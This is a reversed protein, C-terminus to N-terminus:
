IGAGLYNFSRAQEDLAPSSVSVAPKGVAGDVGDGADKADGVDRGDRINAKFAVGNFGRRATSGNAGVVPRKLSNVRSVGFQARMVAPLEVYFMAPPYMALKRTRVYIVYDSWIEATTLNSGPKHCIWDHLYEVLSEHADPRVVATVLKLHEVVAQIRPPRLENKPFGPDTAAMKCLSQLIMQSIHATPIVVRSAAFRGQLYFLRDDPDFNYGKLRAFVRAFTAHNLRRKKGTGLFFPGFESVTRAEFFHFDLDPPWRLDAFNTCVVTAAPSYCASIDTVLVLNSSVWDMNGYSANSPFWGAIRIWICRMNGCTTIPTGALCPNDQLFKAAAPESPLILTCLGQSPAGCEIAVVHELDGDLSKWSQVISPDLRPDDLMVIDFATGAGFVQRITDETNSPPMPASGSPAATFPGGASPTTTGPAPPSGAAPQSDSPGVASAAAPTSGGVTLSDATASPDIPQANM